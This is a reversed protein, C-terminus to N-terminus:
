GKNLISVWLVKVLLSADVIELAHAHGRGDKGTQLMELHSHTSHPAHALTRAAHTEHTTPTHRTHTYHTHRADPSRSVERTSSTHGLWGGQVSYIRETGGPRSGAESGRRSSQPPACQLCERPDSSHGPSAFELEIVRQVIVLVLYMAIAQRGGKRTCRM